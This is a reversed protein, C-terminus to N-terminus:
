EKYHNHPRETVQYWERANSHKKNRYKAIISIAALCILFVLTGGILLIFFVKIM